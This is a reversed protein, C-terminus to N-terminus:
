LLLSLSSLALLALLLASSAGYTAAAANAAIPIPASTTPASTTSAPSSSTGAQSPVSSTAAPTSTSTTSPTSTASGASTGSAPGSSTSASGASAASAASAAASGTTTSGSSAASGASVSAPSSSSAQIAAGTSAASAASAAASTTSPTTSSSVASAPASAASAASAAAASSSTKAASSQAAASGTTSGTASGTGAATSAAAGSVGSSSTTPTAAGTSTAGSSVQAASGTTSGTATATGSATSAGSAVSGSSTQVVASGTTSGTASGTSAGTTSGTASGTGSATSAPSATSPTSPASTVSAPTSTGTASGPASTVTTTGAASTASAATSVASGAAGSAGATSPSGSSASAGQAATGTAASTSTAGATTTTGAGAGTAASSSSQLSAVAVNVNMWVQWTTYSTNTAVLPNPLPTSLTYPMLVYNLLSDSWTYQAVTGNKTTNTGAVPAALAAGNTSFCLSYSATPYLTVSSGAPYYLPGHSTVTVPGPQVGPGLSLDSGTTSSTGALLTWASGSVQYLAIRTTGNVNTQTPDYNTSFNQLVAGSAPLQGFTQPPNCHLVSSMMSSFGMPATATPDTQYGLVLSTGVPYVPASSSYASSSAGAAATPAAGATSSPATGNALVDIWMQYTMKNSGSFTSITTPLPSTIYYPVLAENMLSDTWRYIAITGPVTNNSSPVYTSTSNTTFCISYSNSAYLTLSSGGGPYLLAGGNSVTVTPQTAAPNSLMPLDSGLASSTGALLTYTGTNPDVQYLAMRCTGNVTTETTDYNTVFNQLVGGSAPLQSFMQPPNCHLDNAVLSGLTLQSMATPDTEYGLVLVSPQQACVPSPSVLLSLVAFLALSVSALSSFAAM